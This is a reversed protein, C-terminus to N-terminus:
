VLGNQFQNASLGRKELHEFAQAFEQFLPEGLEGARHEQKFGVAQSQAVPGRGAQRRSVIRQDVADLSAGPCSGASGRNMAPLPDDNPVDRGVREPFMERLECQGM